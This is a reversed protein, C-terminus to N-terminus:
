FQKILHVSISKGENAEFRDYSINNLTLESEMKVVNAAVHSQKLKYVFHYHQKFSQILFKM